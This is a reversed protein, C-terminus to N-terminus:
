PPPWSIRGDESRQPRDVKVRVKGPLVEAGMLLVPSSPWGKRPPASSGPMLAPNTRRM